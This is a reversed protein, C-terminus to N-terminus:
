KTESREGEDIGLFLNRIHRSRKMGQNLDQGTNGWIMAVAEEGAKL